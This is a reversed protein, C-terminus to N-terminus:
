PEDSSPSSPLWIIVFVVPRHDPGTMDNISKNFLNEVDWPIVQTSTGALCWDLIGGKAQTQDSWCTYELACEPLNLKNCNQYDWNMDGTIAWKGSKGGIDQLFEAANEIQNKTLGTQGSKFHALVCFLEGSQLILGARNLAFLQGYNVEISANQRILFVYANNYGGPLSEVRYTEGYTSILFAVYDDVRTSHVECLFIVTIELEICTAIFDSVKSQKELTSSQGNKEINWSAIKISKLREQAANHAAQIAAEKAAHRSSQNSIKYRKASNEVVQKGDQVQEDRNRKSGSIADSALLYVLDKTTSSLNDITNAILITDIAGIFAPVLLDPKGSGSRFVATITEFVDESPVTCFECHFKVGAGANISINWYGPQPNKIILSHISSNSIIALSNGDQIDHNYNTEDPAKINLTAGVPFDISNDNQTLVAYLYPTNRDIQTKHSYNVLENRYNSVNDYVFYRYSNQGDEEFSFDGIGVQRGLLDSKRQFDLEKDLAITTGIVNIGTVVAAGLVAVPLTITGLAALAGLSLLGVATAGTWKAVDTWESSDSTSVESNALSSNSTLVEGSALTSFTRTHNAPADVYLEQLTNGITPAVDKSPTTQVSLLFPTSTPCEVAFKWDGAQPNKVTFAWVSNGNMRVFLDDTNSEQDLQTGDPRFVKVLAGEPFTVSSKSKDLAVGYLYSTGEAIKLTQQREAQHAVELFKVSGSGSANNKIPSSDDFNQDLMWFGVLGPDNSNTENFRTRQIEDQSLARNWMTVDEIIGVFQRNAEQENDCNGIVVRDFNHIDFYPQFVSIRPNDIEINVLGAIQGDFFFKYLDTGPKRTFAIHHWQGDLADKNARSCFVDFYRGDNNWFKMRFWGNQELALLWGGSTGAKSKCSVITGPQTTQFIATITFEGQGFNYVSNPPITIMGGNDVQVGHDEVLNESLDIACYSYNNITEAWVCHFIPVWSVSGVSIAPNNIHSTDTLNRNM